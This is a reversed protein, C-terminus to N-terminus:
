TSVPPMQFCRSSGSETSALSHSKSSSWVSRARCRRGGGGRRGGAGSGGSVGCSPRRSTAARPGTLARRTSPTLPRRPRDSPRRARAPQVREELLANAESLERIADQQGSLSISLQLTIACCSRSASRRRASRDAHVPLSESLGGVICWCRRGRRRAAGVRGDLRARLAAVAPQPAVARLRRPVDRRRRARRAVGPRRSQERGAGLRRAAALAGVARRRGRGARHRRATRTACARRARGTCSSAATPADLARARGVGARPARPPARRDEGRARDADALLERLADVSTAPRAHRARRRPRAAVRARRRAARPPRDRQGRHRRPGAPLRRPPRRARRRHRRHQRDRHRPRRPLRRGRARRPLDRPLRRLEARMLVLLAEWPRGGATAAGLPSVGFAARGLRTSASSASSRRGPGPQDAHPLPGARRPPRRDDDPSSPSARRHRSLAPGTWAAGRRRARRPPRALSAATPARAAAGADARRRHGRAARHRPATAYVHTIADEIRTALELSNPGTRAAPSCTRSTGSRAAPTWRPSTSAATPTSRTCARAGRRRRRVGRVVHHLAVVGRDTDIRLHNEPMDFGPLHWATAFRGPCAAPACARARRRGRGRPRGVRRAGRRDVEIPGLLVDLMALVHVGLNVLAGGGSISPDLEWM